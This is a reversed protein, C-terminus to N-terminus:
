EITDLDIFTLKPVKNMRISLTCIEDFTLYAEGALIQNLKHETLGLDNQLQWKNFGNIIQYEKVLRFFDIQFQALWYEPSSILEKRDM